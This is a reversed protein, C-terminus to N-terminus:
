DYFKAIDETKVQRRRYDRTKWLPIEGINARIYVLFLMILIEAPIALIREGSPAPM